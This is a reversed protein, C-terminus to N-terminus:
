QLGGYNAPHNVTKLRVVRFLHFTKTMFTAIEPGRRAKKHVYHM